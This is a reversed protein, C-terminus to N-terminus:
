CITLIDLCRPAMSLLRVTNSKNQGDTSVKVVQDDTKFTLIAPLLMTERWRKNQCICYSIPYPKIFHATISSIQM